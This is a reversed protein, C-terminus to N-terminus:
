PDPEAPATAPSQAWPVDSPPDPNHGIVIRGCDPCITDGPKGLTENLVVYTPIKKRKWDGGDLTWSCREAPYGTRKNSHPSPVPWREGEKLAYTFTKNTDVCMFIAEVSEPTPSEATTLTKVTLYVATGLLVIVVFVGLGGSLPGGKRASSSSGASPPKDATTKNTVDNNSSEPKM